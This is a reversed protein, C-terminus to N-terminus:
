GMVGTLGCLGEAWNAVARGFEAAWEAGHTTAFNPIECALLAPTKETALVDNVAPRVAGFAFVNSTALAAAKKRGRLVCVTVQIRLVDRIM